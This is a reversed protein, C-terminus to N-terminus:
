VGCPGLYFLMPLLANINVKCCYVRRQRKRRRQRAGVADLQSILNMVTDRYKSMKKECHTYTVLLLVGVKM